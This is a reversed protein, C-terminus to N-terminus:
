YRDITYDGPPKRFTPFTSNHKTPYMWLPVCRSRPTRPHPGRSLAGKKKKRAHQGYKWVVTNVNKIPKKEERTHQNRTTYPQTFQTLSCIRVRQHQGFSACKDRKKKKKKVRYLIDLCIQNRGPRARAVALFVRGQPLMGTMYTEKHFRSLLTRSILYYRHRITRMGRESVSRERICVLYM